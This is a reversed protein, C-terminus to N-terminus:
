PAFGRQAKLSRTRERNLHIECILRRDGTANGGAAASAVSECQESRYARFASASSELLALSKDRYSPEEDWKAIRERTSAEAAELATQSEATREVLCERQEAHSSREYCGEDALGAATSTLALATVLTICRVTLVRLSVNPQVAAHASGTVM